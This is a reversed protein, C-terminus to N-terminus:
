AEQTERPWMLRSLKISPPIIMWQDTIRWIYAHILLSTIVAQEYYCALYQKFENSFYM